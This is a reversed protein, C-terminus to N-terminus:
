EGGARLRELEEQAEKQAKIVLLRAANHARRQDISATVEELLVLFDHTLSKILVSGDLEVDGLTLGPTELEAWLDEKSIGSLEAPPVPVLIGSYVTRVPAGAEPKTSHCGISIAVVVLLLAGGIGGAARAPMRPGKM